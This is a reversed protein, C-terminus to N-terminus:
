FSFFDNLFIEDTGNMERAQERTADETQPEKQELSFTGLDRQERLFNVVAYVEDTDLVKGFLSALEAGCVILAHTRQKRAEESAQKEMRKIQEDYQDIRKQAKERKAKVEAVREEWPRVGM